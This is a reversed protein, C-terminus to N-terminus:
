RFRSSEKKLKARASIKKAIFKKIAKYQKWVMFCFNIVLQCILLIIFIYGVNQFTTNDKKFPIRALLILILDLLCAFCEFIIKFYNDVYVLYPKVKILSIVYILDCLFIMLTQYIPYPNLLVLSSAFLIRRIVDIFSFTLSWSSNTRFEEFWGIMSNKFRKSLINNRDCLKLFSAIFIGMTAIATLFSFIISFWSFLSKLKMDYLELIFSLEFEILYLMLLIIILKWCFLHKINRLMKYWDLQRVLYKRFIFYTIFSLFSVVLLVSLISGSNILFYRSYQHKAFVLINSLHIEEKTIIQFINPISNMRSFHLSNLINLVNDPYRVNALILYHTLQLSKISDFFAVPNSFLLPAFAVLSCLGAISGIKRTEQTREPPKSSICEGSIM